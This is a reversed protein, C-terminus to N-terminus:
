EEINIRDLPTVNPLSAGDSGPDRANVEGAADGRYLQDVL